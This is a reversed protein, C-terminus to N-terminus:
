GDHDVEEVQRSYKRDSAVCLRDVAPWDFFVFSQMYASAAVPLM